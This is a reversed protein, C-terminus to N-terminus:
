KIEADVKCMNAHYLRCIKLRLRWRGPPLVWHSPKNDIPKSIVIDEFQNSTGDHSTTTAILFLHRM